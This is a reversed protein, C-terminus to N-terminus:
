ARRCEELASRFAEDIKSPNAFVAQMLAGVQDRAKASGMFAPSTYYADEQEMCVQAALATLNGKGDAQQLLKMYVSNTEMTAMNLVPVYGSAISFEAQFNVSTTLYKIFLWSAITEQPDDSKFICVSPGQSIVKPNQPDVQPIRTVGVTFEFEGQTEGSMQYSAGATSGICMYARPLPQGTEENMGTETFLTSTYKDNNLGQTTVLGEQYWDAFRNVFARNEPTDFLYKEGTASTYPTGLQECMTIFWNAESDYGLPISTPVLEKIKRCTTEMEDWTTPVKLGDEKHEDFFTKNYYLVETSKSFPMTYMKGDAFARGENYYGPIFMDVQEQTLGIKETTGDARTVEMDAYAGGPLFADLPQVAGATNYSAVHDPYCYAINPQNGAVIQNYILDRLSDYNGSAASDIGEVTINPYLKNFEAVSTALVRRLNQGQTHSFSITVPKSTDFEVVNEEDLATKQKNAGCATFAMCAAMTCTLIGATLVMGIRKKM